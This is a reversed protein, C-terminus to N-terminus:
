KKTTLIPRTLVPTQVPASTPPPVKTATAKGDARVKASAISSQLILDAVDDRDRLVSLDVRDSGDAYATGIAEHMAGVLAILDRSMALAESIKVIM